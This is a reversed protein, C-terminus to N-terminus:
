TPEFSYTLNTLGIGFYLLIIRGPSRDIPYLQKHFQFLRFRKALNNKKSNETNEEGFYITNRKIVM